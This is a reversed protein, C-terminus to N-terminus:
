TQRQFARQHKIRPEQLLIDQLQAVVPRHVAVELFYERLDFRRGVTPSEGVDGDLRRARALEFVEIEIVLGAAAFRGQRALAAVVRDTRIGCVSMGASQLSSRVILPAMASYKRPPRLPLERLSM